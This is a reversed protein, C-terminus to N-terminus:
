SWGFLEPFDIEMLDRDNSSETLSEVLEEYDIMKVEGDIQVPIKDGEEYEIEIDIIVPTLGLIKAARIRHCGETAQWCDFEEVWIAKIKPAGLAEMKNKVDELHEESYHNHYIKILTM